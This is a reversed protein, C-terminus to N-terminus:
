TVKTVRLAYLGTENWGYGRVRLYVTQGATLQYEIRFNPNDPYDVDDSYDIKDSVQVEATSFDFVTKGGGWFVNSHLRIQVGQNNEFSTQTTKSEILSYDTEDISFVLCFDGVMTGIENDFLLEVKSLTNSLEKEFTTNQTRDETKKAINIELEIQETSFAFDTTDIKGSLILYGGSTKKDGSIERTLVASDIMIYYDVGGITNKCVDGISFSYVTDPTVVPPTNDLFYQITFVSIFAFLLCAAIVGVKKINKYFVIKKKKLIEKQELHKELLDVDLYSIADMVLYNNM